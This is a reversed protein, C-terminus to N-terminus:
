LTRDPTTTPATRVNFDDDLPATGTRAIHRNILMSCAWRRSRAVCIFKIDTSGVDGGDTELAREKMMEVLNPTLSM